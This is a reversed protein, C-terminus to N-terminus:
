FKINAEMLKQLNNRYTASVPLVSGTCMYITPNRGRDLSKIHEVNAIYRKHMRCFIHPPLIKEFYGMPRSSTISGGNILSINTYSGDGALHEIDALAIFEINDMSPIAVKTHKQSKLLDLTDRLNNQQASNTTQLLKKLGKNLQSLDLPKLLYHVANYDFAKLAFQNYATTFIVHFSIEDFKELLDFGTQEGLNIDLFLVDPQTLKLESYAEELTNASGVIEVSEDVEELLLKLLKIANAEDDVLFCKIM